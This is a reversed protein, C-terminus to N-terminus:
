GPPARRLLRRLLRAVSAAEPMSTRGLLWGYVALGGGGAAVVVLLDRLLGPALAQAIAAAAGWAVAALVAAAGLITLLSRGTQVQLRGV